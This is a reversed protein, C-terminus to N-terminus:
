TARCGLNRSAVFNRGRQVIDSPYRDSFSTNIECVTSITYGGNGVYPELVPVNFERITVQGQPTVYAIEHVRKTRFYSSGDVGSPTAAPPTTYDVNGPFGPPMEFESEGNAISYSIKRYLEASEIGGIQTPQVEHIAMAKSPRHFAAVVGYTVSLGGAALPQSLPAYALMMASTQYSTYAVAAYCAREARVERTTPDWIPNVGGTEGGTPNGELDFAFLVRFSPYSYVPERPLSATNGGSFHIIGGPVTIPRTAGRTVSGVDTALSVELSPFLLLPILGDNRPQFDGEISISRSETSAQESFGATVQATLPREAM